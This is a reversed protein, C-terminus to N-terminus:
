PIVKLSLAAHTAARRSDFAPQIEPLRLRFFDEAAIMCVFASIASAASYKPRSDGAEIHPLGSQAIMALCVDSGIEQFSRILIHIEAIAYLAFPTVRAAIEPCQVAVATTIQADAFVVSFIGARIAL